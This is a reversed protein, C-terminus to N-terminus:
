KTLEVIFEAVSDDGGEVEDYCFDLVKQPHRHLRGFCHTCFGLSSTFWNVDEFPIEGLCSSSQGDCGYTTKSM